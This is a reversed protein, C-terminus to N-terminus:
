RDDCAKALDAVVSDAVSVPGGVVEIRRIVAARPAITDRVGANLASGPTITIVSGLRSAMVGGTLADPFDRGTTVAVNDWGLGAEGVAWKAVLVGTAYRDSGGLRSVNATGLRSKLSAEVSTSVSNPGGLVTARKTGSPLTYSGTRPDVLVIPRRMDYAVPSGALADPFAGGTAVLVGGDWGAGAKATVHAAISRATAYRDRGQLRTVKGTGLLKVLASEVEAGVSATGGLIYAREAGLRGIEAALGDALRTRETLLLPGGVLGCLASGGLGDPWNQGTAIVVTKAGAPFAKKSAAIATQYRSRGSVREIVRPGVESVYVGLDAGQSTAALNTAASHFAVYVGDGSLAPAGSPANGIGSVGASVVSPARETRDTVFVDSAGNTDTGVLNSATSTYVVVSGDASIQAGRSEGNAQRSGAGISTRVTTGAERDRVFM